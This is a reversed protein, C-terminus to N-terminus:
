FIYMNLFNNAIVIGLMSFSFLGLYAFFRPYRKDERMYETSFLHVLGSILTVVILMAATLNDVGLGM